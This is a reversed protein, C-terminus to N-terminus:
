NVINYVLNLNNFGKYFTKQFVGSFIILNLRFKKALKLLLYNQIM